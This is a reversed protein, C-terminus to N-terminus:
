FILIVIIILILIIPGFVLLASLIIALYDKGDFEIKDNDELWQTKPDYDEENSQDVYNETDLNDTKSQNKEELWKMARDVKKQFIM